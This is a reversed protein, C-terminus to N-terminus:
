KTSVNNVVGTTANYQKALAFLTATGARWLYSIRGLVLDVHRPGIGSDFDPVIAALTIIILQITKRRDSWQEAIHACLFMILTLSMKREPSWSPRRNTSAMSDHHWRRDVQTQVYFNWWIRDESQQRTLWFESLFSVVREHAYRPDIVLRGSHKEHFSLLDVDSALPTTIKDFNSAQTIMM